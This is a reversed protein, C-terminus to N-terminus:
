CHSLSDGFDASCTNAGGGGHIADLADGDATSLTDNGERGRVVSAVGFWVASISDGSPTGSANEIASLTDSVPGIATGGGDTLSIVVGGAVGLAGYAVTDSDAGGDVTNNGTGPFIEDDGADGFLNDGIGFVREPEGRILDAGAGGSITDNAIGGILKNPGGDGSLM